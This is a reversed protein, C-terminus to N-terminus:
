VSFDFVIADFFLGVNVTMCLRIDPFVIAETHMKREIMANHIEHEMFTCNLPALM